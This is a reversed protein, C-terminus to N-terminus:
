CRLVSKWKNTGLHDWKEISILKNRDGGNNFGFGEVNGLANIQYVGENEYTHSFIDSGSGGSNSYRGDGWHITLSVASNPIKITRSNSHGPGTKRTDWTSTFLRGISINSTKSLSNRVPLNLSVNTNNHTISGDELSLAKENEYDLHSTYTAFVGNYNSWEFTLNKTGSGRKYEAYILPTSFTSKDYFEFNLKIKPTGTVNVPENFTVNIPISIQTGFERIYFGDPTTTSVNIICPVDFRPKNNEEWSSAGLDFGTTHSILCARWNSLDQNFSSANQFMYSVDKVNLVDWNSIDDWDSQESRFSTAGSFTGSLNYVGELNLDSAVSVLNSAGKFYNGNNDLRLDGFSSISALKNRDGTGNFSFGNIKGIISILKVGETDYTHTTNTSNWETIRSISNDGWLVTFNYEGNEQLPLKIQNSNSSGVSTKTTDWVSSFIKFDKYISSISIDKVDSLSGRKYPPLTLVVSKSTGPVFLTGKLASANEYDLDPTSDLAGVWYHFTINKTGSGNNYDAYKIVPPSARDPPDFKLALKPSGILSVKENFIVSVYILDNLTYEGDPSSSDVRVVCPVDWKPKFFPSWLPTESDFDDHQTILCVRWGSLDQNFDGAEEFMSNMNSVNIVNWMGIDQDFKATDRFMSNMDLVNSVDWGGIPQNFNTADSFMRSMDSVMSTDWSGINGNFNTADSFMDSMDTVMSTDWGDLDQNFNTADSFMSVLETVLGTDWSGIPQNFSSASRFMSNMDTVNSVDWSGINGNFSSASRFMSNMSTVNSVDWSGINQNFSSASRFMSNMSTVNSVDWSGINQNFGSASRFMSSMSTVNSVDWSGINDNFSSASRFMSSMDTVRSTDWNSGVQKLKIADSFMERLNTTGTLDVNGSITELNVAGKFYSGKNGLRLSGWRTINALKYKDGQDNFRFGKIKGLIILEYVGESDYTHTTNTSNWETVTSRTGDGWLVVFDYEGSNELPLTITTSNSSGPSTKTTDWESVFVGGDVSVARNKSLHPPKPLWTLAPKNNDSANISSNDLILSEESVYDLDPNM